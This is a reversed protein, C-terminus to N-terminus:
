FHTSRRRIVATPPLYVRRHQHVANDGIVINAHAKVEDVANGMAVGTGAAELMGLDSYNDGFAVVDQM